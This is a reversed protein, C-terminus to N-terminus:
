VLLVAMASLQLALVHIRPDVLLAQMLPQAFPLNAFCTQLTLAVLMLGVPVRVGDPDVELCRMYHHRALPVNATVGIGFQHMFGLNFSARAVFPEMWEGTGM